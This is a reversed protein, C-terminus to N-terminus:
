EVPPVFHFLFHFQDTTLRSYYRFTFLMADPGPPTGMPHRLHSFNKTPSLEKDSAAVVHMAMLHCSPIM